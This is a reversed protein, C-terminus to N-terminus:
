PCNTGAQLSSSCSGLMKIISLFHPASTKKTTKKMSALFM